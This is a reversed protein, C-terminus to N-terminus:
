LQYARRRFRLRVMEAVTNLIFTMAFLVLAALFLTRYHTSNRVAEPLEVAINASLTRFGNFMNWEMVPTNGAAMLVIMTEGVARGLGIMVASFLGSLATPLIIRVATQWRTAGAGLSAARLHEPVTSLADEAITYIIPIIAFGMIFGVILANRQVYTGVFSGRPDFGLATLVFSILWAAALAAMSAAAFKLLDAWATTRRSWERARPRLWPNVVRSMVLGIFVATMPLFLIMWAGLGTGIQGDLWIKLDGAFLVREVLPGLLWAAPVGLPAFALVFLFRWRSLRLMVAQPLMQWAYAGILLTVPMAVFLTLVAPVVNEVFPAIVLAALFGLVVSPLSAMMEITPKIAAKARPHLFESTYIAALLALPVGFVLSYVTAKITGFILPYLGFKEEFDDTGSSSQWVHTPQEYGEYWVPTFLARLTAEPHRADLSWRRLQAGGLAVIGDDKPALTVLRVPEDGGDVDALLKHSTVQHLRVRGDAHGVLVTRSRSSSALSTVPSGSGELRHARVLTAGDSTAANPPKVRFWAGVHGASDGVLLTAKGLLSEIATLEVGGEPVLDVEEVLSAESVNRTDFRMAHGDRWVLFANDGLGSLMLHEPEAGDARGQYPVSGGRVTRTVKQTLINKRESVQEIKLEGAATLACFFKSAAGQTHDILRIPSSGLAIPEDLAVSVSEFRFQSDSIRHLVGRRGDREHEIAARGTRARTEEDLDTEDVFTSDFGIRGFCVTGDDFGFSASGDVPSVSWATLKPETFAHVVGILRGTEADIATVRGDELLAWAITQYENIALRRPATSAAPWAVPSQPEVRTPLFLPAAVWVLFVAVTSVAVITAVGGVTIVLRSVVNM